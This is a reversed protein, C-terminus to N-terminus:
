KELLEKAKQVWAPLPPYTQYDVTIGVNPTNNNFWDADNKTANFKDEAEKISERLSEELAESKEKAAGVMKTLIKQTEFRSEKIWKACYEPDNYFESGQPTLDHLLRKLRINEKALLPAHLLLKQNAIAEVDEIPEFTIPKYNKQVHVQCISNNTGKVFIKNGRSEWEGETVNDLLDQPLIKEKNM